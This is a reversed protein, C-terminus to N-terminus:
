CFDKLYERIGIMVEATPKSVKKSREKEPPIFNDLQVETKSM